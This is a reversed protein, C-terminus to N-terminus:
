RLVGEKQMRAAYWLLAIAVIWLMACFIKAGSTDMGEPMDAVGYQYITTGLLGVLSVAFAAIAHRSRLLLLISGALAAWVGVAWAANAWLPFSDIWAMQEPTMAALWTENHTKTMTYDAAGMCNWLLSAVGVAWLHWPTGMTRADSM